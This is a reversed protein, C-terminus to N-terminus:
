KCYVIKISFHNQKECNLLTRKFNLEKKEFYNNKIIM